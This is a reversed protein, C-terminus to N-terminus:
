FDANLSMQNSFVTSSCWSLLRFLVGAPSFEAPRIFRDDRITTYCGVDDDHIYVAM